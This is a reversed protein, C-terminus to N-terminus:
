FFESLFSSSFFLIFFLIIGSFIAIYFVGNIESLSLEKKQIILAGFGGESFISFFGIFIIAIAVIGFESPSLLRALVVSIVIQFGYNIYKSISLYGTGVIADRKQRNM